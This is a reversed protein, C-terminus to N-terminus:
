LHGTPEGQGRQEYEYGKERLARKVQKLLGYCMGVSADEIFVVIPNPKNDCARQVRGLTQQLVNGHLRAGFPTLILLASLRPVNLAESAVNITGVSIAHADINKAREEAPTAGSAVGVDISLDESLADAFLQVHEASHTLCLVKHGSAVLERAYSLALGYRSPYKTVLSHCLRLHNVEGTRDCADPDDAADAPVDSKHFIIKPILEQDTKSYIIPGLHNKFVSEMGDERHPTASLGVRIGSFRHCLKKFLPAALHHCEDFVAVGFSEYFNDPVDDGRRALTHISMLVIDYDDWDWRKGQVVGVREKPVNLHKEIEEAWQSILNIKDLLVAAKFGERAMYYCAMVTKGYGCGLNLIGQREASLVDLPEHQYPRPSTKTETPSRWRPFLKPAADKIEVGRMPYHRPIRVHHESVVAESPQDGYALGFRLARVNVRDRPCYLFRGDTVFEGIYDEANFM